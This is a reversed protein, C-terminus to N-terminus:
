MCLEHWSCSMFFICECCPLIDMPSFQTGCIWMQLGLGLYSVSHSYKSIPVKFLYNVNFSATTHSELESWWTRKLLPFKSVYISVLYVPGYLSFPMQLYLLFTASALWPSITCFLGIRGVSSRPSRAESSHSFYHRPKTGGLRHNPNCYNSCLM